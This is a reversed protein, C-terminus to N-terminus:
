NQDRQSSKSRPHYFNLIANRDESSLGDGQGIVDNFEAYEPRVKMTHLGYKKAGSWISYHMISLFDYTPKEFKVLMTDFQSSMEPDINSEIMDIYQTREQRQHEHIFGFAHGLEHLVTRHSFCYGGPALNMRHAVGPEGAGLYSWCGGLRKSVILYSLNSQVLGSMNDTYDICSVTGMQAWEACASFFIKKEDVTVDEEFVVPIIGNPWKRISVSYTHLMSNSLVSPIAAQTKLIDSISMEELTVVMDGNIVQNSQLSIGTADIASLVESGSSVSSIILALILFYNAMTKM